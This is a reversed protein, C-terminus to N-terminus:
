SNAAEEMIVKADIDLHSEDYICEGKSILLVQPSEHHVKFTESVKNSISRYSLLDLYYADIKDTWSNEFRKKAMMSISCTTSHKFILIPREISAEIIQEIQSEDNLVKWNEFSM